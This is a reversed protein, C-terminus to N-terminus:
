PGVLRPTVIAPLDNFGSFRTQYSLQTVQWTDFPGLM